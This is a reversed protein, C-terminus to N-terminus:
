HGVGHGRIFGIRITTTSITANGARDETSVTITYIRDVNNTREARVKLTLPGTVEWDPSTTDGPGTVPQNSTVNIIHSFPIVDVADFAGVLVFAPVMPSSPLPPIVEPAAITFLVTPATTDVIHVLFSGNATHGHLDSASCNVTTTGLPFLSGSAPSCSIPRPGDIADNASATYTVFSGLFTLAEKTIDAPLTLVPPGDVVTVTFSGHGTNGHADTASCNVTTTGLAFTSGSAPTCATAVNGDVLDTATVTFTVPAGAPSTANTTINEPVTVVPPTTDRVIVHFSKSGTNGHADTARCQVTTTGVAFASGSAPTCTTGVSGDINDTATSTFTVVTGPGTAETTIDAPVTVVPPTTDVVTVRFSGNAVNGAADHATCQVSTTGFPFTSGSAPTCTVPVPGDTDDNATATYTVVAGAASTAEATIDAPLTLVPPTIDNIVNVNFTKTTSNFYFDSAVCTVTTTGVPFFAGSPPTCSITPNPFINDTATATFNVVVSSAGNAFVTIDSPVTLTPPTTDVVNVDFTGTTADTSSNSAVCQVTTVGFSFTSGSAPSCVLSTANTTATYTVVAGDLSTAEVTFNGPLNLTPPPNAGVFVNFSGSVQNAFSDTATCRVTTNGFPFTSGSAPSCFVPISTGFSDAATATFNVVQQTSVIDRPLTLTPQGSHSVFISFRGEAVPNGFSDRLIAGLSDTVDCTVVTTGIPYLDGSNHGNCTFPAPTGDGNIAAVTFTVVAGSASTANAAIPDPVFIQPPGAPRAIIDLAGGTIHRTGASDVADVSILYHGATGLVGPPVSVVLFTPAASDAAAIFHGGPGDFNVITQVSGQLGSGNITIQVEADNVFFSSPSVSDISDAFAAAAFLSSLVIGLFVLKSARM